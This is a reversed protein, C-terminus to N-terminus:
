LMAELTARRESFASDEQLPPCEDLTHQQQVLLVAFALCGAEGCQKCNTQPLLVYVDLHGPARKRNTVAM